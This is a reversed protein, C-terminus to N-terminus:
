FYNFYNTLYPWKRTQGVWIRAQGFINPKDYVHLFKRKTHVVESDDEGNTDAAYGCNEKNEDDFDGYDLSM